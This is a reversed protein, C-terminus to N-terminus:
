WIGQLSEHANNVRIRPRQKGVPSDCMGGSCLCLAASMGDYNLCCSGSVAAVDGFKIAM